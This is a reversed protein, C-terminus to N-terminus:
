TSYVYTCAACNQRLINSLRPALKTGAPLNQPHDVAHSEFIVPADGSLIQREPMEGSLALIHLLYSAECITQLDNAIYSSTTTSHWEYSSVAHRRIAIFMIDAILSDGM